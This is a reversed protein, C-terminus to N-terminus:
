QDNIIRACRVSERLLTTTPSSCFLPNPCGGTGAGLCLLPPRALVAVAAGLYARDGNRDILASQRGFPTRIEKKNRIQNM